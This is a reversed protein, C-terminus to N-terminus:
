RSTPSLTSRPSRRVDWPLRISSNSQSIRPTAARAATAWRSCADAAGISGAVTKAAAVLIPAQAGFFAANTERSDRAKDDISRLLAADLKKPEQAAGHLFPYLTELDAQETM